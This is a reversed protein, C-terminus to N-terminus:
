RLMPNMQKEDLNGSPRPIKKFLRVPSLLVRKLFGVVGSELGKSIHRVEPKSLPGKVDFYYVLITKNKGTLIFGLVPIKSIVSDITQLPEVGLELDLQNSNLDLSGRAAANFVPSKMYLSRTQAIGRNLTIHGKISEYYFGEKSLEPPRKRFINQLSLFNLVSIIIHSKRITGKELLINASGTLGSVLGKRGKGRSFLIAEAALRGELGPDKIGFAQLLTKIPQGEVKLYASLLSESGKGKGIRGKFDMMGHQWQIYSRDILLDGGKYRCNAQVPGYRLGKWVGKHIKLNMHIDSKKVFPSSAASQGQLAAPREKKRFDSIDLYGADCLLKGRLGEWGQIQGRFDLTSRGIKLKLLKILVEKGRLEADLEDGRIPSPLLGSVWSIGEAQIRGTATLSKLRSPFGKIETSCTLKGTAQLGGKKFVLGFDELNLGRTSVKLSSSKKGSLDFLGSLELASHGISCTLSMLKLEVGPKLDLALRITDRSGKPSITFADTDFSSGVLDVEGECSWLDDVKSLTVQCILPEKFEIAASSKPSFRGLIENFDVRSVLHVKGWKLYERFFGMADFPSQGWSGSGRFTGSGKEDIEMEFRGLHLPFAMARQNFTCDRFLFTAARLQPINRGEELRLDLSAEVKGSASDLGQIQLRLKPPIHASGKLRVLDRLDFSGKLSIDCSIREKYLDEIRVLGDRITSRSFRSKLDFATLGGDKVSFKGSIKEFPLPTGPGSIRLGKYSLNLLLASANKRSGLGGVRSFPGQLSFLDVKVHGGKLAKFLTNEVWPSILATPFIAEFTELPMSPSRVKLLLRPDSNNRFDMTSEAQLTFGPGELHLSTVSLISGQQYKLELALGLEEFSFIQMRKGKTLLFHPKSLIIHSKATISGSLSGKIDMRVQATGQKGFFSRPWPLRNLPLQDVELTLDGSVRDRKERDASISGALAFPIKAGHFGAKGRINLRHVPSDRGRQSLEFDLDQLDFPLDTIEIAAGKLRVIGLTGLRRLLAEELDGPKTSEAAASGKGATLTIVPRYLFIRKPHIHRKLLEKLDLTVSARPAEVRIQDAKSVAKLDQIAFGLGEWFSIEIKGTYLECGLTSSLQNILLHQVSPRQILSNLLLVSAMFLSFLLLVPLIVARLRRLSM